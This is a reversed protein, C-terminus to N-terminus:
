VNNLTKIHQLGMDIVTQDYHKAAEFETSFRRQKHIKGQYTVGSIWKNRSKDFAVGFYISASKKKGKLKKNLTPLNYPNLGSLRAHKINESNTCWELNSVDNNLKNGDIHNVYKKQLPNSIWTLAVLRHVLFRTQRGSDSVIQIQMYGSNQVFQAMVRNKHKSWVRGTTSILYNSFNDYEKWQENPLSINNLM